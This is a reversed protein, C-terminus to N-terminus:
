DSGSNTRKVIGSPDQLTGVVCKTLSATASERHPGLICLDVSLGTQGHPNNDIICDKLSFDCDPGGDASLCVAYVRELSEDNSRNQTILCNVLSVTCVGVANMPWTSIATGRDPMSVDCECDAMIVNRFAYSSTEHMPIQVGGTTSTSRCNLIMTDEVVVKGYTNLSACGGGEVGKLTPEGPVEPDGTYECNYFLTRKITLNLPAHEKLPFVFMGGGPGSSSCDVVVCDEIAVSMSTGHWVVFKLGGGGAGAATACDRVYCHQLTFNCDIAAVGGGGSRDPLDLGNQLIFRRITVPGIPNEENGAFVCRHKKEGDVVPWDNMDNDPLEATFDSNMGQLTIGKSFTTQADFRLTEFHGGPKKCVGITDGDEAADIAAQITGYTNGKHSGPGLNEAYVAQIVTDLPKPPNSGAVDGQTTACALYVFVLIYIFICSIRKTMVGGVSMFPKTAIM